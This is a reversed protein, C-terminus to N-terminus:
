NLFELELKRGLLLYNLYAEHDERNQAFACPVSNVELYLDVPVKFTQDWKEEVEAVWRDTLRKGLDGTL